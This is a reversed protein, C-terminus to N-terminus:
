HGVQTSLLLVTSLSRSKCGAQEAGTGFSYHAQKLGLFQRIQPIRARNPYLVPFEKAPEALHRFVAARLLLRRAAEASSAQKAQEKSRFERNAPL